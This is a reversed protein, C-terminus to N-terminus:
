AYHFFLMCPELPEIDVSLNKVAVCLALPDRLPPKGGQCIGQERPMNQQSVAHLNLVCCMAAVALVVAHLAHQSGRQIETFLHRFGGATEPNSNLFKFSTVMNPTYLLLITLLRIELLVINNLNRIVAVWTKHLGPMFGQCDVSSKSKRGVQWPAPCEASSIGVWCPLVVAARLNGLNTGTLILWRHMGHVLFGGVGPAPTTRVAKGIAHKLADNRM